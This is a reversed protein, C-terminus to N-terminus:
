LCLKTYVSTEILSKLFLLVPDFVGLDEYELSVKGLNMECHPLRWRTVVCLRLAFPCLEHEYVAATAMWSM